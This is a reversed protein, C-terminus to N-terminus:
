SVLEPTQVPLGHLRSLLEHEAQLWCELDHDRGPTTKQALEDARHAVWLEWQMLEDTTDTNLTVSDGPQTSHM